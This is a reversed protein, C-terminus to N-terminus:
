NANKSDGDGNVRIFAQEALENLVVVFIVSSELVLESQFDELV